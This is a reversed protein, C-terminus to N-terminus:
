KIGRYIRNLFYIAGDIAARPETGFKVKCTELVKDLEPKIESLTVQKMNGILYSIFNILPKDLDLHRIQNELDVLKDDPMKAAISIIADIIDVFERTETLSEGKYEILKILNESKTMKKSRSEDAERNRLDATSVVNGDPEVIYSDSVQDDRKLQVDFLFGEDGESEFKISYAIPFKKSIIKHAEQKTM